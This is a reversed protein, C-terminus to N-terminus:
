LGDYDDKNPSNFAHAELLDGILYEYEDLLKRMIEYVDHDIRQKKSHKNYTFLPFKKLFLYLAEKLKEIKEIEDEKAKPRAEKFLSSLCAIKIEYSFL